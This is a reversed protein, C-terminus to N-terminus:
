NSEIKEIRYHPHNNRLDQYWWKEDEFFVKAHERSIFDKTLRIHCNKDRGVIYVKDKDLDTESIIMGLYRIKLNM